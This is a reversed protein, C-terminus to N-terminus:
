FSRYSENIEDVTFIKLHASKEAKSAPLSSKIFTSAEFHYSRYILIKYACACVCVCVIEGAKKREKSRKGDKRERTRHESTHPVSRLHLYLNRKLHTSAEYMCLNM